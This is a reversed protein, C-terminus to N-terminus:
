DITKSQQPLVATSVKSTHDFRSQICQPVTDGDHVNRPFATEAHKVYKKSSSSMKRKKENTGINIETVNASGVM